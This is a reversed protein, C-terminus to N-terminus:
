VNSMFPYHVVGVIPTESSVLAISVAFFPHGISFNTTGDLPDVIWTYKSDRKQLGTEEGLFSYDPFKEELIEKITRESQVDAETVFSKDRKFQVDVKGYFRMLLRGAEEAAHVAVELEKM